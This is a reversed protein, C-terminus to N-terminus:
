VAISDIDVRGQVSAFRVALKRQQMAERSAREASMPTVMTEQEGPDIARQLVNVRPTHRSIVRQRGQHDVECMGELEFGLPSPGIALLHFKGRPCSPPAFAHTRGVYATQAGAFLQGSEGVYDPM